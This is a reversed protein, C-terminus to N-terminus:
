GGLLLPACLGAGVVMGIAIGLIIGQGLERSRRWVILGVAGGFLAVLFVVAVSESAGASSEGFGTSIIAAFSVVVWLVFGIVLGVLVLAWHYRRPASPEGYPNVPWPGQPPPGQPPPGQPPPPGPPPQDASM